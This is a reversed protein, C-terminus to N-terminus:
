RVARESLARVSEPPEPAVVVPEIRELPLTAKEDLPATAGKARMRDSGLANSSACGSALLAALMGGVVVPIVDNRRKSGSARKM